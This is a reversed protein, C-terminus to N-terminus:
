AKRERMKKDTSFVYLAYKSGSINGALDFFMAADLCWCNGASLRLHIMM